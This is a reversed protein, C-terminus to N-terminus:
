SPDLDLEDPYLLLCNLIHKDNLILTSLTDNYEFTEGFGLRDPYSYQDTINQTEIELLLRTDAIM